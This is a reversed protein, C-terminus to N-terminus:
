AGISTESVRLYNVIVKFSEGEWQACCSNCEASWEAVPLMDGDPSYCRVEVCTKRDEGYIAHGCSPCPVGVLKRTPPRRGIEAEIRDCWDLLAHELFARWEDALEVKAFDVIAQKFSGNHSYGTLESWTRFAEAQIEMRLDFASANIPLSGNAGSGLGTGSVSDTVAEDLEDLLAPVKVLGHERWRMHERTLMEILSTLTVPRTM